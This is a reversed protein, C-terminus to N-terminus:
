TQRNNVFLRSIRVVNWWIIIDIYLHFAVFQYYLYEVSKNRFTNEVFIGLIMYVFATLIFLAALSAPRHPLHFNAIFVPGKMAYEKSKVQLYLILWALYQVGHYGRFVGGIFVSESKFFLFALYFISNVTFVM